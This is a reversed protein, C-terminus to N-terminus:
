PNRKLLDKVVVEMMTGVKDGFVRLYEKKRKLDEREPARTTETTGCVEIGEATTSFVYRIHQQYPNIDYRMTVSLSARDEEKSKNDINFGARKAGRLYTAFVKDLTLKPFLQGCAGPRKADTANKDPLATPLVSKLRGGRFSLMYAKKGDNYYWEAKAPTEAHHVDPKGLIAEIQTLTQGQKVPISYGGLELVYEKGGCAFGLQALVMSLGLSRLTSNM